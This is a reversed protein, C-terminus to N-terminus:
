ARQPNAEATQVARDDTHTPAASVPAIPISNTLKTFPDATSVIATLRCSALDNDQFDSGRQKDSNSSCSKRKSCKGLFMRGLRRCATSSLVPVELGRSWCVELDQRLVSGPILNVLDHMAPLRLKASLARRTMSDIRIPLSRVPPRHQVKSIVRLRLLMRRPQHVPHHLVDVLVVHALDFIVVLIVFAVPFPLRHHGAPCAVAPVHMWRREDRRLFIMIVIM